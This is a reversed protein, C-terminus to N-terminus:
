NPQGRNKLAELAAFPHAAPVEAGPDAVSTVLPQPCAEHRPVLPLSLLLEDEVLEPLDLSRTLALVDDEADADLAAAAEEGEVFLFSRRAEVGEEVPGLCRQCVLALRTSAEVHLWVEPSGGRVARLEGRCSWRVRDTQGAPVDAHASAALRSLSTLPWEGALEAGERAFAEVDLRRPDFTRPKM